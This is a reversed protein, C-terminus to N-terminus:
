QIMIKINRHKLARRKRLNSYKVFNAFIIKTYKLIFGVLDKHILEIDLKYQKIKNLVTSRSNPGFKNIEFEM